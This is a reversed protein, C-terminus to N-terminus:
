EHSTEKKADAENQQQCLTDVCNDALSKTKIEGESLLGTVCKAFNSLSMSIVSRRNQDSININIYDPGRNSTVRSISVMVKM